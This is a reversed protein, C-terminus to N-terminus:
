SRHNITLTVHPEWTGSRQQLFNHGYLSSVGHDRLGMDQFTTVIGLPEAPITLGHVGLEILEKQNRKSRQDTLGLLAISVYGDSSNVWEVKGHYLPLLGEPNQFRWADRAAHFRGDEQSTIVGMFALATRFVRESRENGTLVDFVAVEDGAFLDAPGTVQLPNNLRVQRSRYYRAM